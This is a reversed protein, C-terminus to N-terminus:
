KGAMLQAKTIPKIWDSEIIPLEPMIKLIERPKNLNHHCSDLNSKYQRVVWDLGRLIAARHKVSAASRFPLKVKVYALAEVMTPYTNIAHLIINDEEITYKKSIAM